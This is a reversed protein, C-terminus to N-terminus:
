ETAEAEDKAVIEKEADADARDIALQAMTAAVDKKTVELEPAMKDIHDKLSAIEIGAKELVQLGGVLRNKSFAITKRKSRLITTYAALLELFSTPTVYNSRNLQDKFAVSKREVSQHIEKFMEVCGDM